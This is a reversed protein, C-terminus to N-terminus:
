LLHSEHKLKQPCLDSMHIDIGTPFVGLFFSCVICVVCVCMKQSISLMVCLCCLSKVYVTPEGDGTTWRSGGENHDEPNNTHGCTRLLKSRNQVGPMKPM